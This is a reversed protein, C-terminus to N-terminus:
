KYIIIYLRNKAIQNSKQYIVHCSRNGLLLLIYPLRGQGRKRFVKLSSIKHWVRLLIMDIIKENSLVIVGKISIYQVCCSSDLATYTFLINSDSGM